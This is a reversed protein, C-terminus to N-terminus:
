ANSQKFISKWKRKLNIKLDDFKSIDSGRATRKLTKISHSDVLMHSNSSIASPTETSGIKRQEISELDELVNGIKTTDLLSRGLSEKIDRVNAALQLRRRESPHLAKQNNMEASDAQMRELTEFIIDISARRKTIIKSSGREIVIECSNVVEVEGAIAREQTMINEYDTDVVIDASNSAHQKGSALPECGNEVELSCSNFTEEDSDSDLNMVPSNGATQSTLSDIPDGSDSIFNPNEDAEMIPSLSRSEIVTELVLSESNQTSYLSFNNEFYEEGIETMSLANIEHEGKSIPNEVCAQSTDATITANDNDSINFECARHIQIESENVDQPVHKPSPIDPLVSDKLDTLDKADAEFEEIIEFFQDYYDVGNSDQKHIPELESLYTEISTLINNLSNNIRSKDLNNREQMTDFSGEQFSKVYRSGGESELNVSRRKELHSKCNGLYEHHPNRRPLTERFFRGHGKITEPVIAWKLVDSQDSESSNDDGLISRIRRSLERDDEAEVPLDPFTIMEVTSTSSFGLEQHLANVFKDRSDLEGSTESSDSYFSDSGSLEVMPREDLVPNTGMTNTRSLSSRFKRILKTGKLLIGNRTSQNM